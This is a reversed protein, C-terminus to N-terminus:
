GYNQRYSECINVHCLGIKRDTDFSLTVKMQCIRMSLRVYTSYCVIEPYDCFNLRIILQCVLTFTPRSEDNLVYNFRYRNTMVNKMFLINNCCLWGHRKQRFVVLHDSFMWKGKSKRKPRPM